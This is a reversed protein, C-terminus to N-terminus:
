TPQGGGGGGGGSGSKWLMYASSGIMAVLGLKVLINGSSHPIQDYLPIENARANAIVSPDYGDAPIWPESPVGAGFGTVNAEFGTKPVGTVAAIAAVVAPDPVKIDFHLHPGSSNGTNGSLGIQQGKRVREGPSVQLQSFHLYRSVLGNGHQISAFIGLDGLPTASSRMVVGDGAAFIPTGTPLRIDLGAHNTRWGGGIVCMGRPTPRGFGADFGM